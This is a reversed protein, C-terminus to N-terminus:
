QVDMHVFSGDIAYAYRIQPLTQVYALVATASQGQICLDVAKGDLHRSNSIGGVDANHRTCRLGSSVTAPADFFMRAQEAARVVTEQIQAPYGNCYKGCKCAFEQRTFYVIDNWFAEEVRKREPLGYAVSHKLAKQTEPGCIGDVEIGGFASQFSRVAEYTGAGYIGDVIGQYFGLYGLLNQQQKVTM